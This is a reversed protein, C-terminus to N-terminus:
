ALEELETRLDSVDGAPDMEECENALLYQFSRNGEIRYYRGVLQTVLEDEVVSTDLAEKAMEKAEELTIGSVAEVMEADFLVNQVELGDDLVAKIRLDFEGEGEGHESCRGNNLVRTCDEEPCRKILGSGSQIDVMAGVFEAESEQADIDDELEEIEANGTLNVSMRGEYEDTVVNSFRYAQDEEVYPLDADEWSTFKIRGSEDAILGTQRITDSNPDWLDVVVAEVDVWNDPSTITGIDVLETGGPSSDNVGEIETDHEDAYHRLISRRAEHLPVAYTDVMEELRGVIEDQSVEIDNDALQVQLDDAESDFDTM